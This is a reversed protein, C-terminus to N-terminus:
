PECRRRGEVSSQLLLCGGKRAAIAGLPLVQNINDKTLTLMVMSYVGLERLIELFRMTREFHGKGRIFDNYEPLGELSLRSFM